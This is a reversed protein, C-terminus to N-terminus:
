SRWFTAKFHTAGTVGTLTVQANVVLGNGRPSLRSPEYADAALFSGDVVDQWYIDDSSFRILVNGASPVVISSESYSDDSYFHIYSMECYTYDKDMLIDKRTYNIEKEGLDYALDAVPGSIRYIRSM